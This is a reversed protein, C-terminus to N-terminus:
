NNAHWSVRFVKLSPAGRDRNVLGLLRNKPYKEKTVPSMVACGTLPVDESRLQFGEIRTKKCINHALIDIAAPM